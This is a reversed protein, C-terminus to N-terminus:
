YNKAQNRKTILDEVKKPDFSWPDYLLMNEENRLWTTQRKALQRTGAIAKEKMTAYDHKGELYEWVQRYGVCRMSSHSLDLDGRNYLSEVEDILGNALMEEFRIEIIEHLRTRDQPVLGIKLFQVDSTTKLTKNTRFLCETLTKGTIEYVELARIIRQSDNPNIRNSCM